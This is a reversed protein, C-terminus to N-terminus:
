HRFCELSRFFSVAENWAWDGSLLSSWVQDGSHDFQCYPQYDFDSVFDSTSLQNQLLKRADQTCLEYDKTMWEPPNEPLVGNYRFKVTSFPADGVQIEDITSYMQSASSWPLPSKDNLKLKMAM